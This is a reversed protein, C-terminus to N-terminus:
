RADRAALALCVAKLDWSSKTAPQQTGDKVVQIVIDMGFQHALGVM